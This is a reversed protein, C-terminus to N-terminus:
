QSQISDLPFVPSGPSFGVSSPPLAPDTALAVDTTVAPAQAYRRSADALASQFPPTAAAGGAASSAATRSAELKDWISKGALQGIISVLFSGILAFM